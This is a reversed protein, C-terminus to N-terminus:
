YISNGDEIVVSYDIIRNLCINTFENTVLTLSYSKSLLYLVLQKTKEYDAELLSNSMRFASLPTYNFEDFVNQWVPDKFLTFPRSTVYIAYAIKADIRDKKVPDM